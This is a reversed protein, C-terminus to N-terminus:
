VKIIIGMNVINAMHFSFLAVCICIIMFETALRNINLNNINDNLPIGGKVPNMGFHNITSSKLEYLGTSMIAKIIPDRM